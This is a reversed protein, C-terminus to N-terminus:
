RINKKTELFYDFNNEIDSNNKFNIKKDSKFEDLNLEKVWKKVIRKNISYIKSLEDLSFDNKCYLIYIDEIYDKYERQFGIEDYNNYIKNLEEMEVNGSVSNSLISKVSQEYKVKLM